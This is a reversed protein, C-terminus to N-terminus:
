QVKYANISMSSDVALNMSISTICYKGTMGIEPNNINILQNVSIGYIPVSNFSVSNILMTHLYKEYDLRQQCAETTYYSDEKIVLEKIGIRETTYDSTPETTNNIVYQKKPQSGDSLIRGVVTYDNKINSFKFDVSNSLKFNKDTFDWVIPDSTRDKIKEFVFYGDVNYYFQWKMYLDSLKKIVSYVDEGSDIEFNYPVTYESTDIMLKDESEGGLTIMTQKIATSIPTNANIKIRNKLQGGFESTLLCMKDYGKISITKEALNDSIQPDVMFYMGYDFWVVDDSISKLGIWLNFKKNIWILSTNNPFLRDTLVFSLDCMRRIPNDAQINISGGTCLGEISNIVNYNNDLIEIKIYQTRTNSLQVNYQEQSLM